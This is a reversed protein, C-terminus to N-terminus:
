EKDINVKGVSIKRAEKKRYKTFLIKFGMFITALVTNV